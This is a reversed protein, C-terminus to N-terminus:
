DHKKDEKEAAVKTGAYRIADAIEIAVLAALAHWDCIRGKGRINELIERNTM